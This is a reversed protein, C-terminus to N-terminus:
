RTPLDRACRFGRWAKGVNAFAETRVTNMLDSPREGYSGGRSVRSQGDSRQLCEYANLGRDDESQCSVPPRDEYSDAVWEAVNGALDDHGFIGAGAAHSGVPEPEQKDGQMDSYVAHEHSIAAEGDTRWPYPLEQMGGFAAYAWEAETPLRAHDWICFAFAEYWTVGRVPLDSSELSLSQTKFEYALALATPAFAGDLSMWQPDWGSNPFAPHAGAGREPTGEYDFVALFENFRRMTVEFRDLAFPRVTRNVSSSTEALSDDGGSGLPRSYLLTFQDSALGMPVVIAKCCSAGQACTPQTAACSPAPLCAGELCRSDCDDGDPQWHGDSGCSM